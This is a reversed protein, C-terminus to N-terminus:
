QYFQERLIKKNFQNDQDFLLTLLMDRNESVDIKFVDRFEVYDAVACVPRRFRDIVEFKLQSDSRLLAGHWRRPRFPSIPTLAILKSGTPIIPGNASYNYATSGIETSAIIGDCILENMQIVGDVVVKIKASQHTQRLLYLENIAVTNFVEGSSNEVTVKLPYIKLATANQIREVLNDKSYSNTLFGVKGRNMGYIPLKRNAIEHFARLVMGDGSLVVVCDAEAVDAQGYIKVMYRFAEQSKANSSYIFHIKMM